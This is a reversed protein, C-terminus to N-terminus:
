WKRTASTTAEVKPVGAVSPTAVTTGNWQTVNVDSTAGFYSSANGYTLIRVCKDAWAKTGQDEINLVIRAAQMETATLTLSYCSGNDVFGNTTNAEAGENKQVYTDGSAHVANEVKVAGVTSDTIYLCFDVKTQTGYPASITDCARAPAATLLALFLLGLIKKM